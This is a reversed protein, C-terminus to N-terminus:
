IMKHSETINNLLCTEMKELNLLISRTISTTSTIDTKALLKNQQNLNFKKDQNISLHRLLHVVTNVLQFMLNMMEEMKGRKLCSNTPMHTTIMIVLKKNSLLLFSLSQFQEMQSLDKM